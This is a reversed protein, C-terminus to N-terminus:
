ASAASLECFIYKKAPKKRATLIAAVKALLVWLLM